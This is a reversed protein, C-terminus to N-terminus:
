CTRDVDEFLEDGKKIEMAMLAIFVFTSLEMDFCADYTIDIFINNNEIFSCSYLGGDYRARRDYDTFSSSIYDIYKELTNSYYCDSIAILNSETKMLDRLSDEDPLFDENPANIYDEPIWSVAKVFGGANNVTDRYIKFWLEKQEETFEDFNYILEYCDHFDLSKNPLYDILFEYIFTTMEIYEEYLEDYYDDDDSHLNCYSKKAENLFNYIIRNDKFYEIMIVDLSYTNRNAFKYCDILDIYCKLAKDFSLVNNNLFDKVSKNMSCRKLALLFKFGNQLISIEGSNNHRIM